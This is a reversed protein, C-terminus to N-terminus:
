TVMHTHTHIMHSNVMYSLSFNLFRTSNQAFNRGVKLGKGESFLIAWTSTSCLTVRFCIFLNRFLSYLLNRYQVLKSSNVYGNCIVYQEYCLPNTSMQPLGTYFDFTIGDRIEIADSREFRLIASSGHLAASM